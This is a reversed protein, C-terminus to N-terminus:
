CVCMSRFIADGMGVGELRYGKFGDEGRFQVDPATTIFLPSVLSLITFDLALAKDGAKCLSTCM